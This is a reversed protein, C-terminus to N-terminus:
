LCMEGQQGQTSESTVASLQPELVARHWLFPSFLSNNEDLHSWHWWCSSCTQGQNSAARHGEWPVPLALSRGKHAILCEDITFRIHFEDARPSQHTKM